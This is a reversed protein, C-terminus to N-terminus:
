QSKRTALYAAGLKACSTKPTGPPITVTAALNTMLSLRTEDNFNAKQLTVLVSDITNVLATGQETCDATLAKFAKTYSAQAHATGHAKTDEDRLQTAPNLIGASAQYACGALSLLTAIAILARGSSRLM